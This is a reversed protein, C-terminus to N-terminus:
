NTRESFGRQGARRRTENEDAIVEFVDAVDGRLVINYTVPGGGGSDLKAPGGSPGGGYVMGGSGVSPKSPADKARLTKARKGTGVAAAGAMSAVGLHMGGSAMLGPVLPLGVVSAGASAAAAFDRGALIMEESAFGALRQSVMEWIAAKFGKGGNILAQIGATAADGALNTASAIARQGMVASDASDRRAGTLLEIRELEQNLALNRSENLREQMATENENRQRRLDMNQLIEDNEMSLMTPGELSMELTDMRAQEEPTAVFAEETASEPQADKGKKSKKRNTGAPIVPVGGAGGFSKARSIRRQELRIKEELIFIEQDKALSIAYDAWGQGFSISDLFKVLVIHAERIAGETTGWVDVMEFGYDRLYKVADGASDHLGSFALVGAAFSPIVEDYVTASLTDFDNKMIFLAESATEVAVTTEGYKATLKEISEKQAKVQDETEELDIGFEKLSRSSGMLISKTLREFAATADQGTAQAMKVAAVAVIRYQKATLDLGAEAIKNRQVMLSMTDIMGKTADDAEGIPGTLNKYAQGFKDLEKVTNAVKMGFGKVMQYGAQLSALGGPGMKSSLSMIIPIGM